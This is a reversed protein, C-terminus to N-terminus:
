CVVRIAQPEAAFRVLEREGLYDGDVQFAVPQQARLTFSDLDHLRLVRRGHPDPDRSLIQNATRLTSPLHQGRTALVDLGLDFSAEPNPNVPRSGLYTWPATNQVIVTGLGPQAATGPVDLTIHPRRRNDAFYQAVASRLYLGPTSVRGRLRAREVRRIVEADLGMGACFTFWRENARGLGIIRTRGERLAELIVGTGEAWDGPLGLARAFVNTSGGPVVALAPGDPNGPGDGLMGNVVENVTGDGGLTVVLDVGEKVARGTLEAAHGRRRTYEVDLDVESRLARALVDQGRGSTTTAKPNVVLLARM